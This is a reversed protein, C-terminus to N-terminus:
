SGSPRERSRKERWAIAWGEKNEQRARGIGLANDPVDATITSGAAVFAGEGITVPAVLTSNSGIFAGAGITTRHKEFGDYNCTITGAGVNVREGITADGLYALHAASAMEGLVANKVEVFNGVKARPGVVTGPRLHAFPGVRAGDQIRAGHVHSMLVVCEHGVVSDVMRVNPGVVSAAGIRTKGELITMPAIAADPEIEVDVGIFTTAPDVITVGALCHARLIRERLLASARALQWRDNIGLMSEAPLPVAEVRLGKAVFLKVLDTLYYEGQVNANGLRPLAEFLPEADFCYLSSNVERIARERDSADSEEVIAKVSGTEDRIVRGYGTPVDLTCTAITMAARSRVHHEVVQRLDDSTVLPTDGPAVLVPGRHSALMDRTMLLAHGTGLQEPQHAYAYHEEGLTARILDGQHGIVLIPRRVGAGKMARGVHEVLPLGCVAHLAKPLDSKMRTGKGAAM